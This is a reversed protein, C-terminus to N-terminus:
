PRLTLLVMNGLHIYDCIYIMTFQCFILWLVHRIYLLWKILRQQHFFQIDDTALIKDTLDVNYKASLVMDPVCIASLLIQQFFLLQTQAM